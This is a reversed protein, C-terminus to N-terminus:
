ETEPHWGPDRSAGGIAPAPRGVGPGPFRPSREGAVAGGDGAPDDASHGGRDPGGHRQDPDDQQEQGVETRGRGLEISRMVSANTQGNRSGSQSLLTAIMPRM